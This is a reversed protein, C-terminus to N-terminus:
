QFLVIIGLKCGEKKLVIYLSVMCDIWFVVCNCSILSVTDVTCCSGRHFGSTFDPAGSPYAYGAGCVDGIM